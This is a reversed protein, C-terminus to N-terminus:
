DITLSLDELNKRLVFHSFWIGLFDRKMTMWINVGSCHFEIQYIWFAKENIEFIEKAPKGRISRILYFIDLERDHFILQIIM